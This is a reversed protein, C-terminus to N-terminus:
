YKDEPTIHVETRDYIPINLTADGRDDAHLTQKTKIFARYSRNPNLNGITVSYLGPKKGPYLVMSLINNEHIAKAVLVDPYSLRKIYPDSKNEAKITALKKFADKRGSRAMLELSHAWLSSRDRHFVSQCVHKPCEDDLLHMLENALDQDGFEVAAAATATYSSARSFKYNGVDIPWCTRKLNKSKLEHRFLQWQREAIEPLIMNLFLCPFSQMIAGGIQPAAFGLFRSRFPIIMGDPRIFETELRHKFGAKIEEWHHTRNTTDYTRIASATIFNCLPYIWNPECALLGYKSSKYQTKLLEIIEPLSYSYSNGSNDSCTFGHPNSFRNSNGNAEFFSIQAAVFGTYMINERPIPDSGFKFNGWLNEYKWYSWIRYDQQKLILNNQAESLYGKFAPLHVSQAISLAYSMFNLQYRVAGSQFQDNWEFGNFQDLPQLARDLLLRMIQLDELGLEDKFIKPKENVHNKYLKLSNSIQNDTRHNLLKGKKLHKSHRVILIAFLFLVLSLCFLPAYTEASQWSHAPDSTPNSYSHIGAMIAAGIWILFPLVVNGTALWFIVALTFVFVTLISAAVYILQDPNGNGAWNLFGSGPFYFGLSLTKIVQNDTLQILGTALFILILYLSVSFLQQKRSVSFYHNEIPLLDPRLVPESNIDVTM